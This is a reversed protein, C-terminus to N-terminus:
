EKYFASFSTEVPTFLGISTDSDYGHGQPNYEICLLQGATTSTTNTDVQQVGTAGITNFYTGPHTIGFTTTDNDNDMIYLDGPRAIIVEVHSTGAANGVVTENAVGFVSDGASAPLIYGAELNVWDGKTVTASATIHFKRTLPQVSANYLSGVYKAGYAM